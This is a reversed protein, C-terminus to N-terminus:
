INGKQFQFISVYGVDIQVNINIGLQISKTRVAERGERCLMQHVYLAKKSM